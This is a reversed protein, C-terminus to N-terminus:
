TTLLTSIYTAGGGANNIAYSLSGINYSGHAASDSDITMGMFTGWSNQTNGYFTATLGGANRLMTLYEGTVTLYFPFDDSVYFTNTAADYAPSTRNFDVGTVIPAPKIEYTVEATADGLTIRAKYTGVKVPRGETLESGTAATYVVNVDVTTDVLNNTVVAEIAEGTYDLSAPAAITVSGGNTNDCNGDTNSCTAKITDTGDLEYNWDHSHTVIRFTKSGSINYNGGEADSITITAEGGDTNNSYTVTYESAPIENGLDDKLTFTPKIENGNDYPYTAQLGEFTPNNVERPSIEFMKYQRMNITTELYHETEAIVAGVYYTGVYSPVGGETQAGHDSGTPNYGRGARVYYTYTVEGNEPNNTVSPANPTDLYEWGELEIQTSLSGKNIKWYKTVTGIYNGKGTVTVAYGDGTSIDTASTIGTIEYDTDANLTTSSNYKATVTVTQVNGNYSVSTKSLNVM